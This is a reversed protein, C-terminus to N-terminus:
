STTLQELTFAGVVGNATAGVSIIVREGVGTPAQYLTAPIMNWNSIPSSFGNMAQISSSNQLQWNPAWTTRVGTADIVSVTITVVCAVDVNLYGCVRYTGQNFQAPTSNQNNMIEQVTGAALVPFSFQSTSSIVKPFTAPPAVSANITVAGTGGLPGTSSLTIGTGAVIQSVFFSPEWDSPPATFKLVTFNQLGSPNITFGEIGVVAPNPYNNGLDGGAPGTPNGSPNGPVYLSGNWILSQGTNPATVAIPFGQLETANM